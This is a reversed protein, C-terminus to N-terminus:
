FWTNQKSQSWTLSTIAVLWVHQPCVHSMLMDLFVSFPLMKPRLCCKSNKINGVPNDFVLNWIPECSGINQIASLDVPLKYNGFICNTTELFASQLKWFHLKYNGSICKTTELFATQLKWFHLKYNGFICKTTELFASQLKWFHLKYNGFICNTTELFATQLKWFHVKYNGFICNTTELFATQLKWFHLKYNGFICNTTELFATQLKWFHLKYNGFICNTVLPDKPWEFYQTTHSWKSNLKQCGLRFCWFNLINDETVTTETDEQCASTVPVSM